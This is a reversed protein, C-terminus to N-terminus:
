PVEDDITIKGDDLLELFLRQRHLRRGAVMEEVALGYQPDEGHAAFHHAELAHEAHHDIDSGAHGIDGHGCISVFM